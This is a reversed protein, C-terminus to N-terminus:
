IVSRGCRTCTLNALARDYSEQTKYDDRNPQKPEHDEVSAGSEVCVPHRLEYVVEHDRLYKVVRAVLGM